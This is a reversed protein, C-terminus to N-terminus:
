VGVHRTTSESRAPVSIRSRACSAPASSRRRSCRPARCRRRARGCAARACSARRRRSRADDDDTRRAPARADRAHGARRDRERRGHVLHDVDARHRAEGVGLARDLVRDHAVHVRVHVLALVAAPELDAGVRVPRDEVVGVLDGRDLLRRQRRGLQREGSSSKTWCISSASSSIGSITPSSDTPTFYAILPRSESVGSPRGISPSVGSTPPSHDAAATHILSPGPRRGRPRRTSPGRRARSRGAPRRCRGSRRRVLLRTAVHAGAGGLREVLGVPDDVRRSCHADFRPTRSSATGRARARARHPRRRPRRSPAGASTRTWRAAPRPTRRRHGAALGLPVDRQHDGIM